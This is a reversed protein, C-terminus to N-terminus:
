VIIKGLIFLVQNTDDDMIVKWYVTVPTVTKTRNSVTRVNVVRNFKDELTKKWLKTYREVDQEHILGVWKNNKSENFDIEFFEKYAENVFINEGKENCKFIPFPILDLQTISLRKIHQLSSEFNKADKALQNVKDKLSEGGNPKLEKLVESHSSLTNKFEISNFSITKISTNIDELPDFIKPKIIYKWSALVISGISGVIVGLIELTYKVIEM